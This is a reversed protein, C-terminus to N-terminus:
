PTPTGEEYSECTTASGLKFGKDCKPVAARKSHCCDRCIRNTTEVLTFPTPVEGMDIVYPTGDSNVWRASIADTLTIGELMPGPSHSTVWGTLSTRLEANEARLRDCEETLKRITHARQWEYYAALMHEQTLKAVKQEDPTLEEDDMVDEFSDVLRNMLTRFKEADM